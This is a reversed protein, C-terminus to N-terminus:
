HVLLTSMTAEADHTLLQELMWGSTGTTAKGSRRAVPQGHEDIFDVATSSWRRPPDHSRLEALQHELKNPLWIDDSDLFAIWEGRAAGLGANRVRAASCSHPLRLVPLRSDGLADVDAASEDTSGDDAVIAEWDTFTQRRVSDLADRLLERRNYTPVIISVAPADNM